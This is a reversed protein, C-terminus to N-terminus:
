KDLAFADFGPVGHRALPAFDTVAVRVEVRGAEVRRAAGGSATEGRAVAEPADVDCLVTDDGREGPAHTCRHPHREGAADTAGEAACQRPAYTRRRRRCRQCGDAATGDAAKGDAATGDAATGDAAAAQAAAMAAAAAAQAAVM